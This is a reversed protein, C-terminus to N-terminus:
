LIVPIAFILVGLILIYTLLHVMPHNIKLFIFQQITRILWFVSMGGLFFNGISTTLLEQPYIFCILAVFLFFYILCINSIHLITRNTHTLLKLDNKWDFLKWFQSHFIAFCLAYIGCLLIMVHDNM